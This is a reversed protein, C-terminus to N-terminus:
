GTGDTRGDDMEVMKKATERDLPVGHEQAQKIMADVKAANSGKKKCGAVLLCLVCFCTILTKM